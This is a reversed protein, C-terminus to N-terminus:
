QGENSRLIWQVCYVHHLFVFLNKGWEALFIANLLIPRGGGECSPAAHRTLTYSLSYSEFYSM